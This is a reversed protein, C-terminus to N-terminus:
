IVQLSSSSGTCGSGCTCGTSPLITNYSAPCATSASYCYGDSCIKDPGSSCSPFPGPYSLGNGGKYCKKKNISIVTSRENKYRSRQMVKVTVYTVKIIFVTDTIM